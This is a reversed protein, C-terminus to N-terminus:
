QSKGAQRSNGVENHQNRGHESEHEMAQFCTDPCKLCLLNQLYKAEMIMSNQLDDAFSSWM